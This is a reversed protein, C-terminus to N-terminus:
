LAAGGASQNAVPLPLAATAQLISSRPGQPLSLGGKLRKQGYFLRRPPESMAVAVALLLDAFSLFVRGGLTPRGFCRATEYNVYNIWINNLLTERVM